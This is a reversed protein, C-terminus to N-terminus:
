QSIERHGLHKYKYPDLHAFDLGGPKAPHYTIHGPQSILLKEGPHHPCFYSFLCCPENELLLLLSAYLGYSADTGLFIASLYHLQRVQPSSKLNARNLFFFFNKNLYLFYLFYNLHYKIKFVSLTINEWLFYICGM